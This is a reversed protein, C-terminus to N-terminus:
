GAHGPLDSPRDIDILEADKTAILVADSLLSRAGRDGALALAAGFSAAPMCAPVGPRGDPHRVASPRAAPAALLAAITTVTVQPMDGLLILLRGAGQELAFQVAAQLSGSQIDSSPRLRRIDDGIAEAVAPNRVAAARWQVPAVRLLGASAAVLPAGRWPALLKDDAGWRRSHGAALLVGAVPGSPTGDRTM